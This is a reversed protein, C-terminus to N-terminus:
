SVGFHTEFELEINAFTYPPWPGSSLFHLDPREAQLERVRTRFEVELERNVLFAGSLVLKQRPEVSLHEQRVLGAMRSRLWNAIQQAQRRLEEDGLLERRKGMLFAAGVGAGDSTGPVGTDGAAEQSHQQWIIKVSLEVCGKVAHLRATLAARRSRVFSELGDETVLTGFRFPLPTTKALVSRVVAEHRLVNEHNVQVGEGAFKSAVIGLGEFTLVDVDSGAIGKLEEGLSVLNDAVCYLYLKM